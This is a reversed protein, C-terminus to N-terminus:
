EGVGGSYVAGHLLLPVRSPRFADKSSSAGIGARGGIGVRGGINGEKRCAGKCCAGKYYAGKHCAGKRCAGERCAGKCYAGAVAVSSGTEATSQSRILFNLLINCALRISVHLQQM